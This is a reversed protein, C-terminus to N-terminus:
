CSHVLLSIYLKLCVPILTQVRFRRTYLRHRQHGLKPMGTVMSRIRLQFKTRRLNPPVINESFILGQVLKESSLKWQCALLLQKISNRLKHKKFWEPHGYINYALLHLEDMVVASVQAHQVGVVGGTYMNWKHLSM